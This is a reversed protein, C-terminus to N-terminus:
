LQFSGSAPVVKQSYNTVYNLLQSRLANWDDSELIREM